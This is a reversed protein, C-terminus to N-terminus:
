FILYNGLRSAKKKYQRFSFLFFSFKTWPLSKKRKPPPRTHTYWKGGGNSGNCGRGETKKKKRMEAVICGREVGGGGEGWKKAEKALVQTRHWSKNKFTKNKTKTKNATEVGHGGGGREFMVILIYCCVCM